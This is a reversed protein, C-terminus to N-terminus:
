KMFFNYWLIFFPISFLVIFFNQAEGSFINKKLIVDFLLGLVTTVAMGAAGSALCLQILMWINELKLGDGKLDFQLVDTLDGTIPLKLKSLAQRVYQLFNEIYIYTYYYPYLTSIPLTHSPFLLSFPPLIIACVVGIRSAGDKRPVPPARRFALWFECPEGVKRQIAGAFRWVTQSGTRREGSAHRKRPVRCPAGRPPDPRM